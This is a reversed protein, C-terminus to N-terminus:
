GEECCSSYLRVCPNCGTSTGRPLAMGGNPNPFPTAVRSCLSRRTLTMECFFCVKWWGDLPVSTPLHFYHDVGHGSRVFIDVSGLPAVEASSGQQLRAHFFYNWLNFQPEIGMYAECLTVFSAMNWVTSSCCLASFDTHQFV